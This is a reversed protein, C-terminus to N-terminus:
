FLKTFANQGWFFSQWCGIQRTLDDQFSAAIKIPLLGKPGRSCHNRSTGVKVRLAKGVLEYDFGSTIIPIAAGKTARLNTGGLQSASAQSRNNM